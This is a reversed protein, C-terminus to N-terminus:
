SVSGGEIGPPTFIRLLSEHFDSQDEPGGPGAVVGPGEEVEDVVHVDAHGSRHRDAGAVLCDLLEALLQEVLQLPISRLLFDGHLERHLVGGVPTM